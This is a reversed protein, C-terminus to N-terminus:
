QSLLWSSNIDAIVADTYYKPSRTMDFKIPGTGICHASPDLVTVYADETPVISGTSDKGVFKQDPEMVSRRTDLMPVMELM